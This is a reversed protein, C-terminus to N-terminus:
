NNQEMTIVVKGKAHVKEFYWFAEVARGLPYCGDIVPVVKGSELLEKMFILDKQSQVLSAIYIEQSGTKSDKRRNSAAQLLQVMSGGVVVFIGEPDLARLYDSIPHYGNVALILDYQLGNQTM